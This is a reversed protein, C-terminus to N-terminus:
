VGANTYVKLYNKIESLLRTLLKSNLKVDLFTLYALPDTRNFCNLNDKTLYKQKAKKDLKM